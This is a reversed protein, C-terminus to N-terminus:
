LAGDQDKDTGLVLSASPNAFNVWIAPDDTDHRVTDTIIVPKIIDGANHGNIVATPRCAANVIFLVIIILTAANRMHINSQKMM